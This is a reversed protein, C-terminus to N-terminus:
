KESKLIILWVKTQSKSLFRVLGSVTPLFGDWWEGGRKRLLSDLMKLIDEENYILDESM